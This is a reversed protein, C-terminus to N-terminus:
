KKVPLRAGADGDCAAKKSYRGGPCSGSSQFTKGDCGCYPRLDRTCMREKPACVGQGPGCGEGECVGSSCEDPKDCSAGDPRSGKAALDSGSPAAPAEDVAAMTPAPAADTTAPADGGAIDAPAPPTDAPAPEPQEAENTVSSATCGGLSLILAAVIPALRPSPRNM